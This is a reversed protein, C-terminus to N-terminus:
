VMHIPNSASNFHQENDDRLMKMNASEEKRQLRTHEFHSRFALGKLSKLWSIEENEADNPQNPLHEPIPQDDLNIQNNLEEQLAGQVHQAEEIERNRQDRACANTCCQECTQLAGFDDQSM